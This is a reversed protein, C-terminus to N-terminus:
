ANKLMTELIVHDTVKMGDKAITGVGDLTEEIDQKIIGDGAHYRIGAMSLINALYAAHVCTAIKIACSSKAGDCFIGSVDALTNIITRCVAEYDGGALFTIGAGAGCAATVAGCFASLRGIRTKIGLAVLNALALARLVKEEPIKNEQAYEVIPVSITIGQNGSGCNIVVPLQCGEMRAESAAAAKMCMRACLMGGDAQEIAKAITGYRGQMGVESIEVNCRIQRELIPRIDSVAVQQAFEYADLITIRHETERANAQRQRQFVTQGDKKKCVISTHSGCLEVFSNHPGNEMFITLHLPEETELLKLQCFNPDRLKEKCREVDRETVQELVQLKLAPNGGVAGLVAAAPIGVQGGSKPVVVSKANKILNGSCAIEIKEPELGLLERAVASAYAIAIPETCGLAPLLEENLVDLCEQRICDKM